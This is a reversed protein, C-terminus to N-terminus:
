TTGTFARDSQVLPHQDPRLLHLHIKEDGPFRAALLDDPHALWETLTEGSLALRFRNFGNRDRDECGKNLLAVLTKPPPLPSPTEVLHILLRNGIDIRLIRGWVLDNRWECQISQFVEEPCGCGLTEQAFRQIAADHQSM